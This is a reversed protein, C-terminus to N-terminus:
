RNHQWLAMKNKLKKQCYCCTLPGTSIHANTMHVILSNKRMFVGGCLDCCFESIKRHKVQHLKMECKRFSAFPCSDCFFRKINLHFKNIHDNLYHTAIGCQPCVLKRENKKRRRIERIELTTLMEKHRNLRHNNLLKENTFSKSCWNCYLLLKQQEEHFNEIDGLFDEEEELRDFEGESKVNVYESSKAINVFDFDNPELKIDELQNSSKQDSNKIFNEM